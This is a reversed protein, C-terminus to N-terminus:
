AKTLDVICNRQGHENPEYADADDDDFWRGARYYRFAYRRGTTLTVSASRVDGRRRLITAGSNWSNFDGVVFTDGSDDDIPLVFTVRVKDGGKTPERLIMDSTEGGM